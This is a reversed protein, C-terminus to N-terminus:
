EGSTRRDSRFAYGYAHGSDRGGHFQIGEIGRGTAPQKGRHRSDSRRSFGAPVHLPAASFEEGVLEVAPAQSGLEECIRDLKEKALGLAEPDRDFGILKGTPGLRRVIEAAHGALGLTCDVVTSGERVQLYEIAETLLVPVHRQSSRTM